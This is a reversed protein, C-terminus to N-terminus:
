VHVGLALLVALLAVCLLLLAGNVASGSLRGELWEWRSAVDVPLASRAQLRESVFGSRGLLAPKRSLGAGVRLLPWLLDGPEINPLSWGKRLLARGFGYALVGGAVVPWIGTWDAKFSPPASALTGVLPLWGVPTLALTAALWWLARMRGTSPRHADAETRALRWLFRAMLLTTGLAALTLLPTLPAAWATPAAADKLVQKAWAGATFPTGALALALLGSGLLVSRRAGDASGIVGVGLFLAGKTLAHQLAYLTVAPLMLPWVEPAHLGLGVGANMFGMQSISSYALIVKTDRQVLGVAVGYFAAALGAFMLLLGLDSATMGLPLFRLWGLLGAKIMTGSLVASAPTPAVPHALPLWMHLLLAGAKIGFGALLLAIVPERGPATALAAAAQAIGGGALNVLQLFALLLLAEGLVAMVIYVRGARRAAPTGSHVILGYAAFTMLAYFLYFGAVDQALILGLNGTCTILFFGAFRAARPDDALYGRAYGGAILWLLATFLLFFQGTQDLGFRLGLLMWPIDISLDPTGFLALALAPLAAWPMAGPLRGRWGRRMGLLSAGLLPVLLSAGLLWVM